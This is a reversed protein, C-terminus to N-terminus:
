GGIQHIYAKTTVFLEERPVGSKQIARGAAEENQYSSTTDM